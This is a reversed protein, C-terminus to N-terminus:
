LVSINDNSRTHVKLHAALSRKNTCSYECHQCKFDGMRITTCSSYKTALYSNLTSFKMEDLANMMKKNSERIVNALTDKQQIFIQYENNIENVIEKGISHETETNLENLIPSISDIIDIAIQIKEKSYEVNHVYVLIHGNHFDIQYNSKYTIASTQSLFIGNCKQEDIDRIFKSVEDSKVVKDYEKNEFLITPKNHRKVIFDGAATTKKTEVIEATPMINSLVHFLLNEGIIGKQSANNYRNVIASVNNLISEQVQKNQHNQAKIIEMNKGLREETLSITNYIPQQLTVIMNTYKDEFNSVFDKVNNNEICRKIDEITTKKFEDIRENIINLQDTNTKPISEHFANKLQYAVQTIYNEFTKSSKNTTNDIILTLENIHDRKMDYLHTKMINPMDTIKNDVNKLQSQLETVTKLIQAQMSSNASQGFNNVVKLIEVLIICGDDFSINKNENFFNYVQPLYTHCGPNPRKQDPYPASM